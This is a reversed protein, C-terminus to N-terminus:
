EAGLNRLVIVNSLVAPIFDRSSSQNRSLYRRPDNSREIRRKKQKQKEHQSPITKSIPNLEKKSLPYFNLINKREEKKRETKNQLKFNFPDISELTIININKPINLKDM